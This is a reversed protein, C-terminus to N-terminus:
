DKGCIRRYIGLGIAVIVLLPLWVPLLLLIPITILWRQWWPRQNVALNSVAREIENFVPQYMKRKVNLANGVKLAM